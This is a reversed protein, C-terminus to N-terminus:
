IILELQYKYNDILQKKFHIQTSTDSGVVEDAKFGFKNCLESFDIYDFDEDYKADIWVKVLGEKIVSKELKELEFNKIIQESDDNDYYFSEDITLLKPSCFLKYKENTTINRMNNLMRSILWKTSNELNTCRLFKNVGRLHKKLLQLKLIEVAVSYTFDFDHFIINKSKAMKYIDSKAIELVSDLYKLLDNKNKINKSEKLIDLLQM